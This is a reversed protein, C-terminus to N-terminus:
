RLLAFVKGSRDAIFVHDEWVTPSSSIKSGTNFKWLLDGSRADLCYLHGDVSGIYVAEETVVPSSGIPGESDFKWIVHGKAYDMAYVSGDQSGVYVIGLPESIAPSSTVINRTRQKWVAYGSEADIAYVNWDMSGVYVNTEYVSPSSLVPRNTKFKWKLKSSQIDIAYVNTDDSGFYVLNGFICPSSRIPEEVEFKWVERGNRADLNYLYHDDSGVFVHQMAVRPSSRIHGRTRASWVISGSDRTVARIMQDESGFIVFDQWVCPWGTVGDETPYKWVFTGERADLAYLNHDYSGIYLMGDVIVPSSTIMDECVFEWVPLVNGTEAFALTSTAFAVTSPREGAPLSPAVSSSPMAMATPRLLDQLARKFEQASEFRKEVEYELAKNVISELRQSVEPNLSRIPREHFTFPPEEQPDHKTLLHHMTAGLAYLDGRPEAAGRYQEPPTYGETGIMTGRQAGQFVKAIGFDILVIRNHQDLIINSPKLDRFIIPEPEHTHLYSLVDCVQIAWNIVKEQAIPGSSQEILVELNQGDIFEMVLYTRDGESFYDFVKVVAHHNLSALVNAERDFHQRYLDRLRADPATNFMEKVACIRSAKEFRLDRAKYVMAMGGSGVSGLIEYRGQLVVGPELIGEAGLQDLNTTARLTKAPSM